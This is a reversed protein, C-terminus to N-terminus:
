GRDRRRVYASLLENFKAELKARSLSPHIRSPILTRAEGNDDYGEFVSGTEVPEVRFAYREPLHKRLVQDIESWSTAARLPMEARHRVVALLRSGQPDQDGNLIPGEAVIKESKWELYGLATRLRRRDKWLEWARGTEPHIRNAVIRLYASRRPLNQRAEEVRLPLTKRFRQIESLVQDIDIDTIHITKYEVHVQHGALGLEALLWDLHAVLDIEKSLPSWTPEGPSSPADTCLKWDISIAYGPNRVRLNQAATDTMETVVQTREESYWQPLSAESFLNWQAAGFEAHVGAVSYYDPEDSYNVAPGRIAPGPFTALRVLRGFNSGHDIRTIM